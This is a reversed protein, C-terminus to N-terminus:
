KGESKARATTAEAVGAGILMDATRASLDHLVTGVACPKDEHEHGEKVIRVSKTAHTM